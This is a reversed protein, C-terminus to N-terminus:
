RAVRSSSLCKDERVHRIHLTSTFSLNGLYRRPSSIYPAYLLPNCVLLFVLTSRSLPQPFPSDLVLFQVPFQQPDYCISSTSLPVPCTHTPSHKKQYRGVPTYLRPCLATLRNHVVAHRHTYICCSEIRRFNQVCCLM